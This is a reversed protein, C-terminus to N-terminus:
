IYVCLHLCESQIYNTVSRIPLFQFILPFPFLRQVPSLISEESSSWDKELPECLKKSLHEQVAPELGTQIHQGTTRLDKALWRAPDDDSYYDGDGAKEKLDDM